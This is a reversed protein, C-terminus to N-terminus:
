YTYFYFSILFKLLLLFSFKLSLFHSFDLFSYLFSYFYICFKVFLLSTCFCCYKVIVFRVCFFWSMISFIFQRFVPFTGIRKVLAFPVTPWSILLRNLESILIERPCNSNNYYFLLHESNRRIERAKFTMRM